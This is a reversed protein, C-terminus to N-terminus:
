SSRSGGGFGCRLRCGLQGCESTRCAPASARALQLKRFTALHERVHQRRFETLCVFVLGLAAFKLKECYSIVIPLASWRCCEPGAPSLFHHM